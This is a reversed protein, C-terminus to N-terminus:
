VHGGDVPTLQDAFAVQLVSEGCNVAKGRLNFMPLYELDLGLQINTTVQDM